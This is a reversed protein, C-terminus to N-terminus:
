HHTCIKMGVAYESKKGVFGGILPEMEGCKEAAIEELYKNCGLEATKAKAQSARNYIATTYM